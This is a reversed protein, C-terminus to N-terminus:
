LHYPPTPNAVSAPRRATTRQFIRYDLDDIVIAEVEFIRQDKHLAELWAAEFVHTVVTQLRLDHLKNRSPTSKL